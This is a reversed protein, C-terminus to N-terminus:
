KVTTILLPVELVKDHGYGHGWFQDEGFCEGHDGSIVLLYPKPINELFVKIRKDVEELAAIQAKHLSKLCEIDSTALPSKATKFGWLDSYKEIIKHTGDILEGTGIDYPTHTEPCNIFLFYKDDGLAGTLEDVHNLPFETLQRQRFVSHFDTKGYFYFSDFMEKLIPSRFWRVGGSGVIKFGLDRYGELINNGQLVLGCTEPDRKRGSSLRWLQKVDSSYYPLRPETIVSPLYGMFFSMHAPLTYDGHTRACKFGGLQNLYPINAIQTTDFRCSDLTIFVVNYNALTEVM